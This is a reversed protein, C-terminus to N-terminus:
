YHIHTARTEYAKFAAMNGQTEMYMNELRWEPHAVPEPSRQTLYWYDMLNRFDNLALNPIQVQYGEYFHLDKLPDCLTNYERLGNTTAYMKVGNRMFNGDFRMLLRILACDYPPIHGKLYKDNSYRFSPM